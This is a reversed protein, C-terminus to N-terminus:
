QQVTLTLGTAHVVAVGALNTSTATIQLNYTQALVGGTGEGVTRAGCGTLLLIVSLSFLWPLQRRKRVWMLAFAGLAALVVGGGQTRYPGGRRLDAAAAPVQVTVNVTAPGAAPVVQPPSFIVIAKSPFGTAGLSVAGTFPSSASRVVLSYTAFGGASTSASSSGSSAVTFDPLALVQVALPASTSPLFNKDGLYAVALNRNGEPPVPYTATAQGGQLAATAVVTGGDLFEISGTPQGATAPKVAASLLLPLGAYAQGTSDVAVATGARVVTLVGSGPAMSVSYNGAEPGQLSVDIPYVGVEPMSSVGPLFM